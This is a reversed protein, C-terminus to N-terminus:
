FAASDSSLGRTWDRAGGDYRRLYSVTVYM